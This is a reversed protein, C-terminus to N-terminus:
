KRAPGRTKQELVPMLGSATMVAPVRVIASDGWCYQERQHRPLLECVEPHLVVVQNEPVHLTMNVEGFMWFDEDDTRVYTEFVLASDREEWGYDIRRIYKESEAVAFSKVRVEETLYMRNGAAPLIELVPRSYLSEDWKNYQFRMGFVNYETLRGSGLMDRGKLHIVPHSGANLDVQRTEAAGIGYHGTNAILLTVFLILALLWATLAFARLVGHRSRINFIIKIGWYILAIIPIVVLILGAVFAAAFQTNSAFWMSLDPADPLGWLNWGSFFGTFGISLVLAAVFFSIGTIVLLVGIFAIFFKFFALVILGAARFISEFISQTNRAAPSQAMDSFGSRVKNYESHVSEKITSLNVPKGRMQLRDATSRARPVVLWLILYILLGFGKLFFLALFALRFWLPDVDFYAGLGSSVGGFYRNDTDRFLRRLNRRSYDPQPEPEGYVFDDISGLTAIIEKIDEDSVAQMAESMRSEILEAIRQEIDEIIGKGADPEASFHAKLAELYHKLRSFADENLHFHRGGIHIPITKKM